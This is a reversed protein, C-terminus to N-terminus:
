AGAPARAMRVGYWGLGVLLVVPGSNTALNWALNSAPGTPALLDGAITLLAGLPLLVGVARPAVGHRLFPLALLACGALEVALVALFAGLMGPPLQGGAALAPAERALWPAILLGYYSLFIGLFMWASALLGGGLVAARGGAPALSLAMPPLGWLVLTAGTVGLGQVALWAPTAMAAAASERATLVSRLVVHAVSLAAGLTLVVGAHRLCTPGTM